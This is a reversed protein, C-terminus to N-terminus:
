FVRLILTLERDFFVHGFIGQQERKILFNRAKNKSTNRIRNIPQHSRRKPLRIADDDDGVLRGSSRKSEQRSSFPYFYYNRGGDDDNNREQVFKRQFDVDGM